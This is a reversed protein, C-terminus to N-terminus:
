STLSTCQIVVFCCFSMKLEPYYFYITSVNNISMLIITPQDIIIIMTNDCLPMIINGTWVSLIIAYLMCHINLPIIVAHDMFMM